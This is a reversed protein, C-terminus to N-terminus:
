HSGFQGVPIGSSINGLNELITSNINESLGKVAGDGLLFQALGVHDSGPSGYYDMKNIGGQMRNLNPLPVPTLFTPAAATTFLTSCGGWAWGDCSVRPDGVGVGRPSNMRPVEGVMIVNSMGDTVDRVTISSNVHLVGMNTSNQAYFANAFLTAQAPTVNFVPRLVSGNGGVGFATDDFIVGSGACGAYDNGGKKFAQDVRYTNNFFTAKMNNRRSPCYFAQIDHLISPGSVLSLPCFNIVTGHLHVNGQCEAYAQYIDGQDLQPLIHLMWSSGHDLTNGILNNGELPDNTQLTGLTNLMRASITGPPFVGHATQYSHLGLGIQKLNNQCQSRRAAERAQQVAPLLIAVLIAIIAIVVLLEILTFGRRIARRSM